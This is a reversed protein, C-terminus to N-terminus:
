GMIPLQETEYGHTIRRGLVPDELEFEFRRAPRIGGIAGVTGGFMITGEPLQSQGTYQQILDDPHLMASVNTEQYLTREGGDLVYSRLILQDWHGSVAEFPWAAAAIPKDCIQKSLTVGYKELERDTHDSGVGIWLKGARCFLIFEVEGSSSEGAVEIRSATTVRSAATHYFIPTSAPRPVGLAELEVIHRELAAQDRGTWGAIICAAIEVQLPEGQEGHFTLEVRHESM